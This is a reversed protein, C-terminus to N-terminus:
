AGQHFVQLLGGNWVVPSPAYSMGIPQGSPAVNQIGSWTNGDYSLYFMQGQFQTDKQGQYFVYLKAM